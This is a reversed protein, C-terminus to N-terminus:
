SQQRCFQVMNFSMPQLFSSAERLSKVIYPTFSFCSVYRTVRNQRKLYANQEQNWLRRYYICITSREPNQRPSMKPCFCHYTMKTKAGNASSTWFLKCGLTKVLNKHVMTQFSNTRMQEGPHRTLVIEGAQLLFLLVFFSNKLFNFLLQFSSNPIDTVKFVIM